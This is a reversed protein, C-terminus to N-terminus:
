NLENEYFNVAEVLNDFTKTNYYRGDVKEIFGAVVFQAKWFEGTLDSVMFVRIQKKKKSDSAIIRMENDLHYQLDALLSSAPIKKKNM